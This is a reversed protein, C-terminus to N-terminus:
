EAAFPCFVPAANPLSRPVTSPWEGWCRYTRTGAHKHFFYRIRNNLRAKYWDEWTAFNDDRGSWANYAIHAFMMRPKLTAIVNELTVGLHVLECAGDIYDQLDYGREEAQELLWWAATEIARIGAPHRRWYTNRSHM